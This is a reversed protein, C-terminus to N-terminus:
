RPQQARRITSWVLKEFLRYPAKLPPSHIRPCLEVVVLDMEEAIKEESPGGIM